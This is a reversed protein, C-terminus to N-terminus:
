GTLGGGEGKALEPLIERSVSRVLDQLLSPIHNELIRSVAAEVIQEISITEAM